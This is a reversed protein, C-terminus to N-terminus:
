ELFRELLERYARKWNEGHGRPEGRAHVLMHACEHLASWQPSDAGIPAPDPVLEPARRDYYGHNYLDVLAPMSFFILHLDGDPRYLHNPKNDFGVRAQLGYADAVREVTAWTAGFIPHQRYEAQLQTLRENSILPSEMISANYHLRLTAEASGEQKM